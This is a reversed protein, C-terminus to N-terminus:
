NWYYYRMYYYICILILPARNVQSIMEKDYCNVFLNLWKKVHNLKCNNRERCPFYNDFIQTRDKIYLITREIINKKFLSYLHHRLKLIICPQHSYWTGGNTSISHRDYKELLGISFVRICAYKAKSLLYILSFSKNIKTWNYCGM